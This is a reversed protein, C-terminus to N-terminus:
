VTKSDSVIESKIREIIKELFPERDMNYSCITEGKFNFNIAGMMPDLYKVCYFYDKCNIRLKCYVYEKYKECEVEIAEVLTDDNYQYEISGNIDLALKFLKELKNYRM